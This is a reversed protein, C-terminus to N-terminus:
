FRGLATIGATTGNSTNSSVFPVVMASASNPGRSGQWGTAVLVFLASAMHPIGIALDEGDSNSAGMYTYYGGICGVGLSTIINAVQWRGHMRKKPHAAYHAISAYAPVLAMQGAFNGLIVTEAPTPDGFVENARASTSFCCAATLTATVAFQRTRKMKFDGSEVPVDM